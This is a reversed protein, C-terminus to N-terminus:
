TRKRSSHLAGTRPHPDAELLPLLHSGTGVTRPPFTPSAMPCDHPAGETLSASHSGELAYPYDEGPIPTQREAVHRPTSTTWPHSWPTM